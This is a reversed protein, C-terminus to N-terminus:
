ECSGPAGVPYLNLPRSADASCPGSAHGDPLVVHIRGAEAIPKLSVRSWHEAFRRKRPTPDEPAECESSCAESQLAPGATHIKLSSVGDNKWRPSGTKMQNLRAWMPGDNANRQRPTHDGDNLCTFRGQGLPPRVVMPILSKQDCFTHCSGRLLKNQKLRLYLDDDEGGWGQYENSFGNIKNWHAPSMSIVGGTSDQYPVSNQWCEIEGSLQNPWLCWGYDVVPTPLIDVDHMVVCDFPISNKRSLDMAYTFGVNFLWGRNFLENDFQEVIFVMWYHKVDKRNWTEVLEEIRERFKELHTGRDRFPVVLAISKPREKDYQEQWPDSPPARYDVCGACTCHKSSVGCWGAPSCCPYKGNPNCGMVQGENGPTKSGCRDDSRWRVSSKKKKASDNKEREAEKGAPIPTTGFAWSFADELLSHQTGSEPAQNQKSAEIQKPAQTVSRNTSPAGPSSSGVATLAFKDLEEAMVEDHRRLIKELLAVRRELKSQWGASGDKEQRSGRIVQVERKLHSITSQQEDILHRQPLYVYEVFFM